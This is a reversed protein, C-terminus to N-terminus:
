ASGRLRMAATWAAHWARDEHEVACDWISGDLHHLADLVAPNNAVPGLAKRLTGMVADLRQTAPTSRDVKRNSYEALLVHPARETLWAGAAQGERITQKRRTSAAKM